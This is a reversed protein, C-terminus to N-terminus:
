KTSSGAQFRKLQATMFPDLPELELAAQELRIAENFNGLQFHAEALTDLYEPQGPSAEVARNALELGEQPREGSRACLWAMGNLLSAKAPGEAIQARARAHAQEFMARAEDERGIQKLYPVLDIAMESDWSRGALVKALQADATSKDGRAQAARFRRWAVQARYAPADFPISRGAGDNLMLQMGNSEVMSLASQMAAAAEDLQELRAWLDALVFRAEVHAVDITRADSRTVALLEAIALELWNQRRLWRAVAVRRHSTLSAAAATQACAVAAAPHGRRRYMESLAYLIQPDSLFVGYTRLDQDFGPLPGFRAHLVFLDHVASSSFPEASSSPRSSQQRRLAAAEDYRGASIAAGALADFAFDMEGVDATPARAEIEIARRLLAHSRRRDSLFSSRAALILLSARPNSQDVSGLRQHVNAEMMRKLVSVIRWCVEESPEELALRLLIQSALPRPYSSAIRFVTEVRQLPDPQGYHRLATRIAEPDDQTIWPLSILIEGTAAAISPDEGRSAAILAPRAREGMRRLSEAAAARRTPDPDRLAEILPEVPAPVLAPLTTASPEAVAAATVVICGLILRLFPM